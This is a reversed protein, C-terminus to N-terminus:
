ASEYRTKRRHADACGHHERARNQERTVNKIRECADLRHLDNFAAEFMARAANENVAFHAIGARLIARNVEFDM